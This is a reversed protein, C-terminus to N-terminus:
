DNLMNVFPVLHQVLTPQYTQSSFTIKSNQLHMKQIAKLTEWQFEFFLSHLPQVNQALRWEAREACKAGIAM